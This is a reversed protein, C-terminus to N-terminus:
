GEGGPSRPHVSPSSHVPRGACFVSRYCPWQQRWAGLGLARPRSPYIWWPGPGGLTSFPGARGKLARPESDLSQASTGMCGECGGLGLIGELGLGLGQRSRRGLPSGNGLLRLVPNERVCHACNKVQSTLPAWDEQPEPASPISGPEWFSLQGLGWFLPSHRPVFHCSSPDPGWDPQLLAAREGCMGQLQGPCTGGQSGPSRLTPGRVTGVVLGLVSTFLGERPSQSPGLGYGPRMGWFLGGM